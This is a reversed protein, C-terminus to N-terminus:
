FSKGCLVAPSLFVSSVFFYEKFCIMTIGVFSSDEYAFWHRKCLCVMQIYKRQTRQANSRYKEATLFSKGCLVAPSLFVSSVFFFDRLALWQWESTPPIEMRLDISNVYAYYKINEQTRQAFSRYKEAILFSKGCLVAPPLFVSSVFFYDRLILWQWESWPPIGYYLDNDNRRLLFRKTCIMTMGVFSSDGYNFRQWESM